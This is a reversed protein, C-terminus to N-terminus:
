CPGAEFDAARAESAIRVTAYLLLVLPVSIVLGCMAEAAPEIADIRGGLMAKVMESMHFYVLPLLTLVVMVTTVTFWLKRSKPLPAALLVWRICVCLLGLAVTEALGAAHLCVVLRRPRQFAAVGVVSEIVALVAVLKIFRFTSGYHNNWATHVRLRALRFVTGAILLAGVMDNLVDVRVYKTDLAPPVYDFICLLLGIVILRLSRVVGLVEERTLKRTEMSGGGPHPYIASAVLPVTSLTASDGSRCFARRTEENVPHTSV